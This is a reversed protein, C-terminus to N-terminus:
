ATGPALAEVASIMDGFTKRSRARDDPIQIHFQEEVAFLITLADLSDIGADALATDPTLKEQPLDPKEKRVIAILQEEIEARTM